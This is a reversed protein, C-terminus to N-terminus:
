EINDAEAGRVSKRPADSPCQDATDRGSKEQVAYKEQDVMQDGLSAKDLAEIIHVIDPHKIDHNLHHDSIQNKKEFEVVQRLTDCAPKRNPTKPIM